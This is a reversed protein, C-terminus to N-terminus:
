NVFVKRTTSGNASIVTVLYVGAPYSAGIGLEGSGNFNQSYLLQGSLNSINVRGKMLEPLVLRIQNGAAYVGINLSSPEEIGVTAFSLKFRNADDGAAASFAYVPNQRLDQRLGTLNDTLYIIRNSFSEIGSATITYDGNTGAKFYVPIEPTESASRLTNISFRKEANMTYLMPADADNDLKHADFAADFGETADESFRVFTADSYNTSGSVDLRLLDAINNKYFGQSSHLRATTPITISPGSANAKVFFGQQAPIIGDTLSGAGGAYSLYVGNSWVHVENNINTLAWNGLGWQIASAFPNGLLNWGDYNLNGSNGSNSVVPSINSNNLTGTFTATTSAIDMFFSYGAGSTMNAPIELNVWNGTTENYSRMYINFVDGAPFVDGLAANSIPSSLFHYQNLGSINRIATVNGTVTGTPIFSGGNAITLSGTGITLNNCSAQGAINVAHNIIVDDIPSPAGAPSWTISNWDGSETSIKNAYATLSFNDIGLGQSNSSGGIGVIAWRFYYSSGNTLSLGTIFLSKSVATPPNYIVTNNADPPYNQNGASQETWNIGDSSSYFIVNYERSGSRYKEIDFAISFKNITAGTNNDIKVFINNPSSFSGTTLFGLARDTASGAIGNAWNIIGGSSTGTVAGTGTTGYALTTATTGNSFSNSKDVRWGAPLAATASTLLSAFDQTFGTNLASIELGASSPTVDGNCSVTKEAAGSSNLTILRNNYAGSTQGAKLRVYITTNGVSGGSQTLTVPSTATFAVGTGTSIEYEAPPVISINDTLNSGSVSFSQEASPGAGQVYSFGSLTSPNVTITSSSVGTLILSQLRVGRGSTGNNSFRIKLNNSVPSISIPGGAIYTSSSPTASTYTQTWSTGGDLSVEIKCPNATGSGYTAVQMSLNAGAYTSLDYTATTIIDSGSAGTELLYYTSMDVPNATTNNVSEWGTLLAGGGAVNFIQQGWGLGPAALLTILILLSALKVPLQLKQNM